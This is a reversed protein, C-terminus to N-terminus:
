TRTARFRAAFWALPRPYMVMRMKLWLEKVPTPPPDLSSPCLAYEQRVISKWYVDRMCIERWHKSVCESTVITSSDMYSVLLPITDSLLVPPQVMLSLSLMEGGYVLQHLRQAWYPDYLVLEQSDSM